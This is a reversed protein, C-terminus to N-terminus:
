TLFAEVLEAIRDPQDHHLMHGTDPLTVRQLSAVARMRRELEREDSYWREAPQEEAMVWLVPARVRRWCALVEPVRYLVPNVVKHVPDGLMEFGGQERHRTWHRAVFLAREATLRPNARMLREAVAEISDYPRAARPAPAALEDLWRRYRDPAQASPTGRLGFGELNVLRRVREPRTGAYLMAINGGMSHAVLDVPRDPSLRELLRDLDALYDPFWYSDASTRGSLGFGRWDPAHVTWPRRLRDVIFQFSASCDMWGHLMVVTSPSRGPTRWSRVHLRLGRIRHWRSRSAISPSYTQSACLVKHLTQSADSSSM